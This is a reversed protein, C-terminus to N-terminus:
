KSSDAGLRPPPLRIGPNEGNFRLPFGLTRTKVGNPLTVPEVWGMHKVQPDEVAESYSNIPVCPVGLPALKAIIDAAEFHSFTEELTQRLADQHRARSAASEFRPDNLLDERAMTRCVTQWLSQTGAAMVFYKDRAKFAQYPANRPHASGLRVPDRGSGFYESVQLASVALSAGMMPVDIHVAQRQSGLRLQAAVAYAAYLGAAFDSIPVGAKVPGGAPEGTVSMVGSIAQVTVDFGGEMARPGSQGYASISCYIIRPNVAKADDFGLGLRNLVGARNNEILVDAESILSLAKAKGEASKLDLAFSMKNRNLSAFNESFTDGEPGSHPPWTRMTDGGEPHEIKIVEAGLDGLLMGCFPGAAVHCIEVVKVGALPSTVSSM